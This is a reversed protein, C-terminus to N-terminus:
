RKIILVFYLLLLSMNGIKMYHKQKENLDFGKAFKANKYHEGYIKKTRVSYKILIAYKERGKARALNQIAGVILNCVYYDMEVINYGVKRMFSHYLLGTEFSSKARKIYAAGRIVSNMNQINYYYLKEDTIIWKPYRSFYSFLARMDEGSYLPKLRMKKWVSARFLKDWLVYSSREMIKLWLEKEELCYPDSISDLHQMEKKNMTYDCWAINCDEYRRLMGVLTEYMRPHIEDDADVFAIFEGKAHDLGINRVIAPGKGSNERHLVEVKDSIKAYRDCIKESGDTSGDNVLIIQLNQYTQNLISDVCGKLYRKVNYVPIIVSIMGKNM